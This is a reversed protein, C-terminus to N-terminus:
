LWYLKIAVDVVELSSVIRVIAETSLHTSINAQCLQSACFNSSPQNKYDVLLIYDLLYKFPKKSPFELYRTNQQRLSLYIVSVKSQKRGSKNVKRNGSPVSLLIHIHLSLREMPCDKKHCLHIVRDVWQCFVTHTICCKSQAYTIM